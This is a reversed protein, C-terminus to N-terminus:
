LESRERAQKRLGSELKTKEKHCDTCLVALNEAGCFLRQFYNDWTTFGTVPDVVPIKHDVQVNEKYTWSDCGACLYAENENAVSDFAEKLVQRKAPSWRFAKRAAAFVYKAYWEYKSVRKARKKRKLKKKAM